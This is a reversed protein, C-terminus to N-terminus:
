RRPRRQWGLSRFRPRRQSLNSFFHTGVSFKDRWASLTAAKKTTEPRVVTNSTSAYTCASSIDLRKALIHAGALAPQGCAQGLPDSGLLLAVHNTLDRGKGGGM